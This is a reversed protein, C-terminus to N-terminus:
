PCPMGFPYLLGRFADVTVTIDMFDIVGDPVHPYFDTRATPPAGPVARFRDVTGSIDLFDVNGWPPGVDGWGPTSGSAALSVDGTPFEAEIQYTTGPIIDADMISVTGWQAPTLFQPADSLRALGGGIPAAYRVLCPFLSSTVRLAVPGTGAQPTVTLYRSGGPEIEPLGLECEDPAGDADADTFTGNAIDIDDRVGNANCDDNIQIVAPVRDDMGPIVQDFDDQLATDPTFGITFTGTASPPVDLILTGAYGAYGPDEAGPQVGVVFGAYDVDPDSLSTDAFAQRGAFVFNPHWPNIFVAATEACLGHPLCTASLYCDDNSVCPLGGISLLDGFGTSDIEAGYLGLRPSGSLNPDWGAIRLELTVQGGGMLMTIQNHRIRHGTTAGVPVLGIGHFCEDPAGDVDVDLSSGSLIDCADAAGNRNCDNECEDPEGNENCDGSSGAAVDCGDPVANGNCDAVVGAYLDCLDPVGNGNCDQDWGPECVDPLNNVNCDTTTGGTECDDAIGNNNCDEECEDPVANTNCDTSAGSAVDCADAEGNRNCDAECDDPTGNGNCDESTGSAIDEVDPTGNLNCDRVIRIRAPFYTFPWLDWTHDVGDNHYEQLFTLLVTWQEDVQSLSLTFTGEADASVDVLWTGLYRDVGPDPVSVGSDLILGGIRFSPPSTDSLALSSFGRFIYDPHQMDVFLSADSHCFGSSQCATNAFCDDNEVCPLRALSLTGASGTTYSATDVWVQYLHILPRGDADPDWDGAYVELTVRSPVQFVTIEDGNVAHATTARIPRISFVGEARVWASSLFGVCFAFFVRQFRNM